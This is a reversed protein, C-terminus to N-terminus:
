PSWKLFALLSNQSLYRQLYGAPLYRTESREISIDSQRRDSNMHAAGLINDVLAKRIIGATM